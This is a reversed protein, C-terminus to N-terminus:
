KNTLEQYVELVDNGGKMIPVQGGLAGQPVQEVEKVQPPIEEQM